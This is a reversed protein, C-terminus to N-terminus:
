KTKTDQKYNGVLIDNYMKKNKLVEISKKIEEDYDIDAVARGKQYYYRSLIESRLFYAIENKYNILDEKKNHAIKNKLAEFEKEIATYNNEKQAITKLENLKKESLTEYDYEKDNLFEVFQNYLENSIKFEKAALITKNKYFYQTVFDFIHYKTILSFAINSYDKDDTIVDPLIGGGDYVKRGNKTKFETILSDPIKGVSGDERRHTYDIAQICRGSPIYYKAITVKLKANYSLPIVNQVLGKGFTRQGVIVGRDLDQIAGAVIESASASSRNVLVVLPINLDIAPLQTKYVENNRKLRGKTSSIEQGKDIFINCINVAETLLGGGNGRIDLIVYSINHKAKLENFANKVEIAADQTFSELQIYGVNTDLVDYYQVSNIKIEGRNISLEIPNPENIRRVKLKLLTTASGKLWDSVTASAVDKLSKGNVEIIIDGATLGFKQAPMGELVEAVEIFEGRKHTIAGIGGYQGTTMLKYDEIDSEPIYVTYPDLSELMKDIATNMMKGPNVDDVYNLQLQKYLTVFIDLNKSTEFDTSLFAVSAFSSVSIVVILLTKNLKTFIKKM